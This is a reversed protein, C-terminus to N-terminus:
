ANATTRICNRGDQKARYLAADARDIVSDMNDSGHAEAVGASVTIPLGDPLQTLTAREMAQRIKEALIAATELTCNHALVIMEEGGWRCLVDAERVTERMVRAIGQLVRDGELHGLTDNVRKFHDVDFLLVSFPVNDRQHRSLASKLSQEFVQRNGIGTLEDTTAMVVLRSHFLNVTYTVILITLVIVSLGVLTNTWLGRRLTKLAESEQQEVVVRWGLEPIHRTNLLMTEGNRQYEYFGHDTTLIDEAIAAIGEADHINDETIVAEASRLAIHGTDDIFYIHRGFHERYREVVRAVSNLELGVGTAALFQGDPGHVQHNIFITVADNQQANIDVNLEYPQTMDRVRFYWTDRPEQESVVQSIGSFHYYNRTKDSVLFSTFLGYKRRIDDLYHIIKGPEQEGKLLWDKVFTDTSMLSAVFVPQLLDRQIESYINNSTLPLENDILAQRLSSKSIQYSIVNTLLFGAVLILAITTILPGRVSGTNKWWPM